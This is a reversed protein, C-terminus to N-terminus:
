WDMVMTGTGCTDQALLPRMVEFKLGHLINRMFKTVGYNLIAMAQSRAKVNHIIEISSEVPVHYPVRFIVYLMLVNNPCGFLELM